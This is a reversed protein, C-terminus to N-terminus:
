RGSRGAKIAPDDARRAAFGDQLERITRLLRDNQRLREEPTLGLMADVLTADVVPREDVVEAAHADAESRGM